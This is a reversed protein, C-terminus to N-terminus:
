AALPALRSRSKVTELFVKQQSASVLVNRGDRILDHIGDTLEEDTPSLAVSAPTCWTVQLRSLTTPDVEVQEIIKKFLAAGGHRLYDQYHVATPLNHAIPSGDVQPVSSAQAQRLAVPLTDGECDYDVVFRRRDDIPAFLDKSGHTPSFKKRDEKKTENVAGGLELTKISDLRRVRGLPQNARALRVFENVNAATVPINSGGQTLEHVKNEGAPVCFTLRLAGIQPGSVEGLELRKLLLQFESGDNPTTPGPSASAAPPTKQAPYEVDFTMNKSHPSFLGHTFHTPSFMQAVVDPNYGPPAAVEIHKTVFDEHQAAVPPHATAAEPLEHKGLKEILQLFHPLRDHTVVVNQGDPILEKWVGDQPAVYRLGLRNFDDAACRIAERLMRFFQDSNTPSELRPYVAQPVIQEKPTVQQPSIQQQSPQPSLDIQQGSIRQSRQQEIRRSAAEVADIQLKDALGIVALLLDGVISSAEEAEFTSMEQKDNYSFTALDGVATMTRMLIKEISRGAAPVLERQLRALNALQDAQNRPMETPLRGNINPHLLQNANLKARSSSLSNFPVFNKM